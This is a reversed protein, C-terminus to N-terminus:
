EARAMWAQWRTVIERDHPFALDLTAIEEPLFWGIEALDDGAVAEGTVAIAPYVILVVPEGTTSRVDLVPGLTVELGTEERIERQAAHPVAEGRDVFGAPLGWFGARRTGQGRLGLLVRGERAIVVTVALKPDLFTVAGCATCVPRERGDVVQMTTPQGCRQCFM